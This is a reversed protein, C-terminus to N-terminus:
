PILDADNPRLTRARAATGLCGVSGSVPLALYTVYLRIARNRYQMKVLERGLLYMFVLAAAFVAIYGHYIAFQSRYACFSLLVSITLHGYIRAEDVYRTTDTSVLGGIIEYLIYDNMKMNTVIAPNDHSLRAIVQQRLQDLNRTMSWGMISLPPLARFNTRLTEDIFLDHLIGVIYGAGILLVLLIGVGAVDGLNGKAQQLFAMLRCDSNTPVCPNGVSVSESIFLIIVLLMSSSLSRGFFRSILAAMETM